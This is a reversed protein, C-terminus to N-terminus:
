RPEDLGPIGFPARVEAPTDPVCAGARRYLVQVPRTYEHWPEFPAPPPEAKTAALVYNAASFLRPIESADHVEYIPVDRGLGSYGPTQAWRIGVLAVGCADPQAGIDEFALIANRGRTWNSRYTDGWAVAGMAVALGLLSMAAARRPRSSVRTLVDWAGLGMVLVLLPLASVVFRYEKHGIFQFPLVAAIAIVLAIAARRAGVWILWAMLPLAAGYMLVYQKVYFTAPERGFYTSSRRTLEMTLYGIQGQFPVGWWRWEVVGAVVLGAVTGAVLAVRRDRAAAIFGLLWALAIAPAIQLRVAGAM